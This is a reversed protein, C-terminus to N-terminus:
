SLAYIFIIFPFNANLTSDTVSKSTTPRAVGSAVVLTAFAAVPPVIILARV